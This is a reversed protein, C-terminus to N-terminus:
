KNKECFRQLIAAAQARVANKKVALTTNDIGSIYGEGVAWQMAEEAYPSVEKSDHFASLDTTQSADRNKFKAYRYLIAAMQERTIRDNPAFSTEDIGSIIGNEEAWIVAKEYWSGAKVDQFITNGSVAPEGELRYVIAVIMARTTDGNPAFNKKDVGKMLGNNYVFAVADKFWSNEKVDEFPIEANDAEDGGEPVVTTDTTDAPVTSTDANNETKDENKTETTDKKPDSVESSSSSSTKKAFTWEGSLTIVSDTITSTTWGSFIWKGRVGNRTGSVTYGKVYKTDVSGKADDASSYESDDNPLKESSPYETGWNYVLKWREEIVDTKESVTIEAVSSTTSAAKDAGEKTNTAVVYYYHTGVTKTDPTYTPNTEGEIIKGDAIDGTETKYWQYTVTGGDSVTTTGDLPTAQENVSYVANKLTIAKPVEASGNPTFTWAGTFTVTTGNLTGENWGGFTWKGKVGDKEREVQYGATYKKDVAAKAAEENEYENLDSPLTEEKPFNEGWDYSVTYKVTQNATFTWSGTFEVVKDTTTGESWGSFSWKGQVGDKEGDVEYGNTYKTDVAAKAEAETEYENTNSPITVGEPSEDGWSYAVTYADEFPYYGKYAEKFENLEEASLLKLGKVINAKEAVLKTSDKFDAQTNNQNDVLKQMYKTLNTKYQTDQTEQTDEVPYLKKLGKPTVAYRILNYGPSAGNGDEVTAKVASRSPEALYLEMIYGIGVPVTKKDNTPWTTGWYEKYYVSSKNTDLINVSWYRGNVYSNPQAGSWNTNVQINGNELDTTIDGFKYFGKLTFSLDSFITGDPKVPTIPETIEFTGAGGSGEYNGIGELTVKATGAETNDEWSVVNYDQGAKLTKFGSAASSTVVLVPTIASGTKNVRNPVCTVVFEEAKRVIEFTASGTYGAYNGIGTVTIKATGVNTNDTYVVRYDVLNRLVKDGIKVTVKPMKFGGTYDVSTEECVVDFIKEDEPVEPMVIKFLIESYCDEYDGAGYIVAKATGTDTNNMFTVTYDTGETLQKGDAQVDLAPTIAKGTYTQDAVPAVTFSTLGKDFPFYGAYKEKFATKQEETFEAYGANVRAKEVSLKSSNQFDTKKNNAILNDLYGCVVNYYDNAVDDLTQENPTIRRLGKATVEYEINKDKYGSSISSVASSKITNRGPEAFYIVIRSGVTVDVTKDEPARVAGVHRKSYVENDDKDYVTVSAFLNEKYLAHPQNNNTVIRVQGNELDTSITSYTNGWGGFTIISDVFNGKSINEATVEYTAVDTDKVVAYGVSNNLILTSEGDPQPIFINYVGIPLDVDISTSDAKVTKVTNVGDTIKIEKGKIGNFSEEDLTINLKGQLKGYKVLAETEVLDYISEVGVSAKISEATATNEVLNVLPYINKYVGASILKERVEQTVGREWLDFYPVVNYGTGETYADAYLSFGPLNGLKHYNNYRIKQYAYASANRAGIKNMVDVWFYLKTAYSNTKDYGNKARESEYGARNADSMGLWNSAGKCAVQYYYALVNNWIESSNFGYTDYGHGVEHLPFWSYALYDGMSNSNQAVYHPHYYGQGAGHKNAKVFYRSNSDKNWVEANEDLSLGSFENYQTIMNNYFLCLDKLTGLSNSNRNRRPVLFIARKAEYVAFPAQTSDWFAFFEAENDDEHYVPLVETDDIEYEVVPQKGDARYISQVFPVCDAKAVVELPTGDKPITLNGYETASDDTYVRLTLDQNLSTDAQWIKFTKGAPIWLGLQHRDHGNGKKISSGQEWQTNGINTLTKREVGTRIKTDAGAAFVQLYKEYEKEDYGQDYEATEDFPLIAFADDYFVATEANTNTNTNEDAYVPSYIASTTVAGTMLMATFRAAIVKRKM